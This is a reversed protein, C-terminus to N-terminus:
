RRARAGHGTGGVHPQARRPEVGHEAAIEVVVLHDPVEFGDAEHAVALRAADELHGHRREPGVGIALDVDDFLHCAVVPICVQGPAARECRLHTAEGGVLALPAQRTFHHGSQTGVLGPGSRQETGVVVGSHPDSAPDPHRIGECRVLDHEALAQQGAHQAREGEVGIATLALEPEELHAM